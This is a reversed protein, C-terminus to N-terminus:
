KENDLEDYLERIEKCLECDADSCWECAHTIGAM